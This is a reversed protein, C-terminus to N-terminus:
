RQIEEAQEAKAEKGRIRDVFSLCSDKVASAARSIAKAAKGFLNDMNWSSGKEKAEEKTQSVDKMGLPPVKKSSGENIGLVKHAKPTIEKELEQLEQKHQDRNYHVQQQLETKESALMAPHQLLGNELAILPKYHEMKIIRTVEPQSRKQGDHMYQNLEGQVENQLNPHSVEEGKSLQSVATIMGQHYDIQKQFLEATKSSYKTEQTIREQEQKTDPKAGTEACELVCESVGVSSSIWYSIALNDKSQEEKIAALLNNVAQETVLESSETIHQWQQQQEKSLALLPNNEKLYPESKLTDSLLGILKKGEDITLITGEQWKYLASLEQQLENKQEESLHLKIAPDTPLKIKMGEEHTYYRKIVNMAHSLEKYPLSPAVNLTQQISDGISSQINEQQNELSTKLENLLTQHDNNSSRLLEEWQQKLPKLIQLDHAEFIKTLKANREKTIQEWSNNGITAQIKNLQVIATISQDLQNILYTHQLTSM